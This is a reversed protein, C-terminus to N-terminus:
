IPPANPTVGHHSSLIAGGDVESQGQPYNSLKMEIDFSEDELNPDIYIDDQMMLSGYPM